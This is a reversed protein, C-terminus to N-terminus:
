VVKVAKEGETLTFSFTYLNKLGAFFASLPPNSGGDGMRPFRNELGGREVM